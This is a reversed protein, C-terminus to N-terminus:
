YNSGAPCVGAYVGSVIDGMEVKLAFKGGLLVENVFHIGNKWFGHSYVVNIRNGVVHVGAEAGFAAGVFVIYM